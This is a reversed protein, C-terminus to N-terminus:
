RLAGLDVPDGFSRLVARERQHRAGQWAEAVVQAIGVDPCYTTTVRRAPRDGTGTQEVTEVCGVFRGALVDAARDVASVTVVAGSTGPWSRGVALPAKLVYTRTEERVIGDARLELTHASDSSVLSFRAGTLRRARTVFMGRNGEDDSVDYAWQVGDRLPLFRAVASSPLPALGSPTEVPAAGGGCSVVCCAAIVRAACRTLPVLQKAEARM